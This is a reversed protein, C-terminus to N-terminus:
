RPEVANSGRVLLLWDNDSHDTLEHRGWSGFLVVSANQPLGVAGVCARKEAIAKDTDARAKFLNPFGDRSYSALHELALSRYTM